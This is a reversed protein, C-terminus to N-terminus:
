FLNSFISFFFFGCLKKGSSEEKRAVNGGVREAVCIVTNAVNFKKNM